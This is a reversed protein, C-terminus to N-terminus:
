AVIVGCNGYFHPVYRNNQYQRLHGLAVLPDITVEAIVKILKPFLLFQNQNLNSKLPDHKWQTKSHALSTIRVGDLM